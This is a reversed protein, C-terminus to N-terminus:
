LLRRLWRRVTIQATAFGIVAAAAPMAPLMLWLPAPLARAIDIVSMTETANGAFPAALSALTLLV